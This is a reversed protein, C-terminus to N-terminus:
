VSNKDYTKRYRLDSEIADRVIGILNEIKFPKDVFNYSNYKAAELKNQESIHSTLFVFPTNIKKERVRSILELGCMKPMKIDTLVCNIYPNSELVDIAEEGNSAEDVHAVVSDFVERLMERLGSHDEVILLFGDNM